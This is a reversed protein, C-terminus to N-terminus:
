FTQSAPSCNFHDVGHRFTGNTSTWSFSDSLLGTFRNLDYEDPPHPPQHTSPKCERWKINSDSFTAPCSPGGEISASSREQDFQVFLTSANNDKTCELRTPAALANYVISSQMVAVCLSVISRKMPEGRNPASLRPARQRGFGNYCLECRHSNTCLEQIKACFEWRSAIIGM